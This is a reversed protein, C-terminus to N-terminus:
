GRKVRNIRIQALEALIRQWHMAVLLCLAAIVTFPVMSAVMAIVLQRNTKAPSCQLTVRGALLLLM